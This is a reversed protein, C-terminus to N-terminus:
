FFNVAPPKFTVCLIFFSMTAQLLEGVTSTSITAFIMNVGICREREVQYNIIAVKRQTEPRMQEMELVAICKRISGMKKSIDVCSGYFLAGVIFYQVHYFRWGMGVGPRFILDLNNSYYTLASVVSALLVKTYIGNFLRILRVLDDFEKILCRIIKIRLQIRREEEKGHYIAQNDNHFFRNVRLHFEYAPLWIVLLLIILSFEFLLNRVFYLGKMFYFLAAVYRFLLPYKSILSFLYEDDNVQEIFQDLFFNDVIEKATSNNNLNFDRVLPYGLSGAVLFACIILTFSSRSTTVKRIQQYNALVM